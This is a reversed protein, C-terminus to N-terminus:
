SYGYKECYGAWRERIKQKLAEDINHKNTKYDKQGAAFDEIEQRVAEYPGLELREYMKRIEGAPDAVLDEYRVDYISNAPLRKRQDEFGRYMRTLCDFVYEELGQGKPMQLGQVEDLSQWLRMTSPFLAFPHRVIHIFKAGPFVRALTEIRGTHPPSKLLVRKGNGAVTLLKVFNVMAREFRALDDSACGQMDLFERCPPPDNPFAMRLYPTPAGMTLLAFEDEQPRDWGAAVNDMPRQKPMLWSGFTNMLGETLLCHHPAFCQYTTPSVFREDLFLLEHLYTTGSRWHGIIFVPPQEIATGAIKKGYLLSQMAGMVSNFPVTCGILFAM